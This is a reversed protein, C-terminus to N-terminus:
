DNGGGVIRLTPPKGDGGVAPADHGEELSRITARARSLRSMLTGVPVGLAAAADQYSMGEVAVLHLAARQQDPLAMFLGLVEKLRLSSEPDTAGAGRLSEAVDRSQRAEINKRRWDDVFLNHVISFLWTRLDGGPRYTDQRGYARALADHVLDEAHSDGRTLSRAYRRLPDLLALIDARKEGTM